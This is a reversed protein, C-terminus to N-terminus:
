TKHRDNELTETLKHEIRGLQTEITADLDGTSTEIVCGGVSVRRDDIINISNTGEASALLEDRQARVAAVEAPNVRVRVEHSEKVRRLCSEIVRLVVEPGTRAEHRIVKEVTELCLKLLEPELSELFQTTEAQTTAIDDELRQVLSKVTSMAEARGDRHGEERGVRHAEALIQQAEARATRVIIEAEYKARELPSMSDEPMPAQVKGSHARREFAQFNVPQTDAGTGRAKILKGM